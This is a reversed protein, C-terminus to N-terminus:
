TQGGQGTVRAAVDSVMRRGTAEDPCDLAIVVTRGLRGDAVWGQEV